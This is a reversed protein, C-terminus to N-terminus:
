VIRKTPLTLNYLLCTYDGGLLLLAPQKNSILQHSKSALLHSKGIGARGRLFLINKRLLSIEEKNMFLSDAFDILDMCINRSTVLKGIKGYRKKNEETTTNKVQRLVDLEKNSEVVVSNLRILDDQVANHVRDNWSIADEISISDM